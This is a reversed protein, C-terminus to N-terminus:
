SKWCATLTQTASYEGSDGAGQTGKSARVSLIVEVAGDGSVHTVTSGKSLFSNHESWEVRSGGTENVGSADYELKYETVLKHLADKSLQATGSNDATIKVDGNTYLYLRSSGSTQENQPTLEPLDIAPFSSESWEAFEAVTCSIHCTASVFPQGALVLNPVLSLAFVALVVIFLCSKMRWGGNEKIRNLHKASRKIGRVLPGDPAYNKASTYPKTPRKIHPFGDKCFWGGMKEREGTVM